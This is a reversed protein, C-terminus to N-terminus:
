EQWILRVFNKAYGTNGCPAYYSGSVSCVMIGSYDYIHYGMPNATGSDNIWYFTSSGDNYEEVTRCSSYKCGKGKSDKNMMDIKEKLWKPIDSPYNKKKCSFSILSVLLILILSVKKM